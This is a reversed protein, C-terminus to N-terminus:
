SSVIRCFAASPVGSTLRISFGARNRADLDIGAGLRQRAKGALRDGFPEVAEGAAQLVIVVEARPERLPARNDINRVANRRAPRDEGVGLRQRAIRREALFGIDHRDDLRFHQHVAAVRELAAVIHALDHQTRDEGREVLLADEEFANHQLGIHRQPCSIAAGPLGPPPPPPMQGSNLFVTGTATGPM